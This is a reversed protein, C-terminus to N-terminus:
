EAKLELTIIQIAGVTRPDRRPADVHLADRGEKWVRALSCRGEICEFSIKPKGSAVWEKPADSQMVPLIASKHDNENYLRIMPTGFGYPNTVVQYSGANMMAGGARFSFPIEAKLSQAPANGAAVMLAAAAILSNTLSKM